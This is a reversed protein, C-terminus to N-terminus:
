EMPPDELAGGRTTLFLMKKRARSSAMPGTRKTATLTIGSRRLSERNYVKKGIRPFSLDWFPAAIRDPGGAPYIRM